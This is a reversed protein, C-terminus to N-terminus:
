KKRGIKIEHSSSGVTSERVVLPAALLIRQQPANPEAIRRMLADFATRALAECPQHITTLSPTMASALGVDDFGALMIDSPVRKGLCKLASAVKVALADYGCIVAATKRARLKRGIAASDDPECLLLDATGGMDAAASRVGHWRLESSHPGFQRTCFVIRGKPCCEMVHRALRYGAEFNDIEVTDCRSREPVPVIDGDILVVPIGRKEFIGVIDASLSDADPLFGIPQLIVGMVGQDAFKEALLKAQRARASADGAVIQGLMLVHGDDQCRCSIERCISTFMESYSMVILGITRRRNRFEHSVFSGKGKRRVVLGEWTLQEMARVATKRTCGFRRAIQTESPLRSCYTGDLIGSRLAAVIQEHISKEQKM